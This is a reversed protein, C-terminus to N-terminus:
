RKEAVPPTEQQAQPKGNEQRSSVPAVVRFGLNVARRFPPSFARNASRAYLDNYDASGGRIVKANASDPGRPDVALPGSSYCRPDYWDACWEWVNGHMDFLGFANPKKQGVPHSKGRAGEGSWGFDRMAIADNGCCYREVSGARCAFEWEAETPLRYRKGEKASLWRCFAAADNWSVVAVPHEDTQPFGPHGWTIEPQQGGVGAGRAIAMAGRGDQEGETRYRTADVFHRFQAVTVECAGIRYASTLRVRRRPSENPIQRTLWADNEAKAELVLADIEERTSGMEFEGPPILVLTMGISNTEERAVNLYTAWRDQHRRAEDPPFPAAAPKPADPGYKPPPDPEFDPQATAAAQRVLGPLTVEIEGAAGIQFESGAPARVITERGQRDRVRVIVAAVGMVILLGLFTAGVGVLKKWRRAAGHAGPYSRTPTVPVDLKADDEAFPQVPLVADFIRSSPTPPRSPTLGLGELAEVVETMSPYRDEPSKAVMKQFIADLEPPVDARASSLSPIPADRHALAMSVPTERQYIAKGTVLRYLSCGLSYIDARHDVNHANEAQEPAMYGYTGMVEHASTIRDLGDAAVGIMRALGMDLIKVTGDRDLLLNALKVDRHIIGQRHAYELGRAAQLIWDVALDIPVTGYQRAVAALDKGDVYEMVLYHVGECESADYATVINPHHLRAAAKVERYFREIADPSGVASAPLMKLAVLRDMRKHRAKFVVGMGGQGLRELVVYEGFALNKVKGECIAAAQYETLKGKEVLTRVFGQADTAQQDPSVARRLSSLEEESILGSQALRNLFDSVAIAM